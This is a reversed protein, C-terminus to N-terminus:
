GVVQAIGTAVLGASVIAAAAFASSLRRATAYWEGDTPHIGTRNSIWALATESVLNHFAVVPNKM